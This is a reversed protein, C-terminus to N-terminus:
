RVVEKQRTRRAALAKLLSQLSIEISYSTALIATWIGVGAFTAVMVMGTLEAYIFNMPVFKFISNLYSTAHIWVELGVAALVMRRAYPNKSRLSAGMGLIVFCYFLYVLLGGTLHASLLRSTEGWFVSVYATDLTSFFMQPTYSFLYFIFWPIRLLTLLCVIVASVGLKVQLERRSTAAILTGLCLGILAFAFFVCDYPLALFVWLVIGFLAFAWFFEGQWNAETGLRIFCLTAAFVTVTVEFWYIGLTNNITLAFNSLLPVTLYGVTILGIASSAILSRGTIRMAITVFALVLISLFAVQSTIRHEAPMMSGFLAVLSAYPNVPTQIGFSTMPQGGLDLGPSSWTLLIESLGQHLQMDYHQEYFPEMKLITAVVLLSCLIPFVKRFLGTALSTKPTMWQSIKRAFLGILVAAAVFITLSALIETGTAGWYEYSFFDNVPSLHVLRMETYRVPEQAGPVVYLTGFAAEAPATISMSYHVPNSGIDIQKFDFSIFESKANMWNVQARAVGPNGDITEAGLTLKYQTGAATKFPQAFVNKNTTGPGVVVGKNADKALRYGASWGGQQLFCPETVVSNTDKTDCM